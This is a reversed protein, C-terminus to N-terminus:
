VFLPSPFGLTVLAIIFLPSIKKYRTFSGIWVLPNVFCPLVLIIPIARFSPTIDAARLSSALWLSVGVELVLFACDLVVCKFWDRVGRCTPMEYFEDLVEDEEDDDDETDDDELAEETM